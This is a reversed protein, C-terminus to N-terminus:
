ISVAYWCALSGVFLMRGVWRSDHFTKAAELALAKHQHLQPWNCWSCMVASMVRYQGAALMGVQAQRQRQRYSTYQQWALLCSRLLRCQWRRIVHVLAEHTHKHRAPVQRWATLINTLLATNHQHQFLQLSRSRPLGGCCLKNSIGPHHIAADLTGVDWLHCYVAAHPLLAKWAHSM